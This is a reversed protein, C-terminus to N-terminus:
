KTTKDKISAPPVLTTPKEGDLSTLGNELVSLAAQDKAFGMWCVMSKKLLSCVTELTYTHDPHEKSTAQAREIWLSHSGLKYAGYAPDFVTYGRKIGESIGSAVSALDGPGLASGVCAYPLMVVVISSQHSKSRLLLAIRACEAGKKEMSSNAQEEAKLQAAPTIPKTDLSEWDSPYTFTFGAEDSFEITTVFEPTASNVAPAASPSAPMPNQAAAITALSPVILVYFILKRM